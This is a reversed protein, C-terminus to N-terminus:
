EVKFSVIQSLVTQNGREAKIQLVFNGKTIDIVAEQAPYGVTKVPNDNLLIIYREFASNSFFKVKIKMDPQFFFKDNETPDEIAILDEEVTDIFSVPKSIQNKIFLEPDSPKCYQKFEEIQCYDLETIGDPRPLMPNYDTKNSQYYKDVILMTDHWIRGAGTLGNVEFMQTNDNNGVWVGVVFNNTYGITWSDKFDTSTGTKAAAKFPLKLNSLSGFEKRRADQDSLIHYIVYAIEASNDGFVNSYVTNNSQGKLIIPNGIYNGSNTFVRYANVLDTLSISFGGLASALDSNLKQAEELGIKNATEYFKAIGITKLISVAPINYSNALAERVSVYGHEARDYNRPVYLKEDFTKFVQEKDNIITAPSIGKSMALAYVFPKITSGPNHLATASNVKGDITKDFYNKSGVMSIIEGSKSDIVVVSANGANLLALDKMNSEIINKINEYLRIDITTEIIGTNQIQPSNSAQVYEVFHPAKIVSQDPKINIESNQANLYETRSILKEKALVDLVTKQRNKSNELNTFPDNYTPANPIGALFSLQALDLEKNSKRFYGRSATEIGFYLNSYYNTNLYRELVNSKSTVLSLNLSIAIELLKNKITREDHGLQYKVYQQTITSAGCKTKGSILNEYTCKVIRGIDIGTNSYFSKDELLITTKIILPHIDDLKAYNQYGHEPAPVEYLLQGNRDLFRTSEKNKSFYAIQIAIIFSYLEVVGLLVIIACLIFRFYSLNKKKIISNM